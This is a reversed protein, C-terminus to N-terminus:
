QKLDIHAGGGGGGRKSNLLPRVHSVMEREM